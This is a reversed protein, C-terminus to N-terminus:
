TFGQSEFTWTGYGNESAWRFVKEKDHKTRSVEKSIKKQNKSNKMRMQQVLWQELYQKRNLGRSQLVDDNEGKGHTDIWQKMSAMKSRQTKNKDGTELIERARQLEDQTPVISSIKNQDAM